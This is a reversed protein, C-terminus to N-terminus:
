RAIVDTSRVWATFQEVFQVVASFRISRFLDLTHQGGPLEAYVVPDRCTARLTDVFRRAGEVPTYVDDDGHVVALPAHHTGAHTLPDSDSGPRGDLPGYYGGLGIGASISTDVEEFGPQYRADNATLAAMATLHAGASSGALVVLAPDAGLETGHQRIWALLRKIDILHRPFGAAPSSSLTYNASICTWGRSALHFLLARSERSKRGWRFRGGHLHVFVPSDQPHDRRRYIDALNHEGDDGYRIDVIREVERPRLPWPVFLIKLWPRRRSFPGLGPDVASRWSGGL